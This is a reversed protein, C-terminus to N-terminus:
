DFVGEKKAKELADTVISQHDGVSLSKNFIEQSAKQIINMVTQDISKMREQKYIELEKQIEPLLSQHFDAIQKQLGTQMGTMVTHFETLSQMTLQKLSGTYESTFTRTITEAEKHIDSVVAKIAQNVETQSTDSIYKAGTIIQDAEHTADELIKREKTVADDVVHHYNEDTAQEKKILARERERLKLLYYGVLSFILINSGITFLLSLTLLM